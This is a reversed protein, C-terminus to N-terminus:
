AQKRRKRHFELMQEAMTMPKQTIPQKAGPGGTAGTTVAPGANLPTGEQPIQRLKSLRLRSAKALEDMAQDLHMNNLKASNMSYMLQVIDKDEKLDPNKSYFSEWAQVQQKEASMERAMDRRTQEMVAKTYAAPDEYLLTALEKEIPQPDPISSAPPTTQRALKESELQAFYSMMEDQSEFKKGGVYIPQNKVPEPPTSAAPPPTSPAPEKPAPPTSAPPADTMETPITDQILDSEPPM